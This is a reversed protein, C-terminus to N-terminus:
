EDTFRYHSLNIVVMKLLASKWDLLLTLEPSFIIVMPHLVDLSSLSPLSTRSMELYVFNIITVVDTLNIVEKFFLHDYLREPLKGFWLFIFAINEVTSYKTKICIGFIIGWRPMRPINESVCGLVRLVSYLFSLLPCCSWKFIHNFLLSQANYRLSWQVITKKWLFYSLWGFIESRVEHKKKFIM